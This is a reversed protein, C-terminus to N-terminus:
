GCLESIGLYNCGQDHLRVSTPVRHMAAQHRLTTQFPWFIFNLVADNM